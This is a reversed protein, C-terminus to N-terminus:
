PSAFAKSLEAKPIRFRRSTGLPEGPLDILFHGEDADVLFVRLKGSVGAEPPPIRDVIIDGGSVIVTVVRGQIKTTAQFEREFMGPYVKAPVELTGTDLGGNSPM